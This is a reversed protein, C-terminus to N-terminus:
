EPFWQMHLWVAMAYMKFKRLDNICVCVVCIASIFKLELFTEVYIGSTPSYPFSSAM